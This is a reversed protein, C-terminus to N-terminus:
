RFAQVGAQFINQPRFNPHNKYLGPRYRESHGMKGLIRGCPSTIGEIAYRSGNPNHAPNLSPNLTFPDIYQTAIQGNNILLNLNDEDAYFRGEGHSFAVDHVENLAFNALWPSQNNVIKTSAIRAIHRQIRNHALTPNGIQPSRIEGFPLLGSKVLAQFGNCIGLIM